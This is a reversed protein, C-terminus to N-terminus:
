MQTDPEDLKLFDAMKINNAFTFENAEDDVRNIDSIAERMRPTGGSPPAQPYLDALNLCANSVMNDVEVLLYDRLEQVDVRKKLAPHEEVRRMAERFIAQTNLMINKASFEKAENEELEQRCLFKFGASVTNSVAEVIFKKIIGKLKRYLGSRSIHEDDAPLDDVTFDIRFGFSHELVQDRAELLDGFEKGHELRYRSFLNSIAISYLGSEESGKEEPV